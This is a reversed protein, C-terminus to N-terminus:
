VCNIEKYNAIELSGMNEDILKLLMFKAVTEAAIPRLNYLPGLMIPKIVKFLKQLIVEDRRATTRKGQLPGPRLFLLKEFGILAVDREMEGKCRLYHSSSDASAGYSSVVALRKVGCAKMQEAVQVVLDHDIAYLAENSGAQKKTTGLCIVGLEAHILDQQFSLCPSVIETLQPVKLDLRRRTISYVHSIHESVLDFQEITHHGILGTTGAIILRPKTLEM